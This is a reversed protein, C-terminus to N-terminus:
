EEGDADWHIMVAGVAQALLWQWRQFRMRDSVGPVFGRKRRWKLYERMLLRDAEREEFWAGM